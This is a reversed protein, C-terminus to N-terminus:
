DELSDIMKFMEKIEMISWILGIISMPLGLIVYLFSTAPNPNMIGLGNLVGLGFIVILNTILILAKKINKKM